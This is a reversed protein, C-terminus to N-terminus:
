SFGKALRGEHSRGLRRASGSSTSLIRDAYGLRDSPFGWGGAYTDQDYTAAIKEVESRQQHDVEFWGGVAVYAVRVAHAHSVDLALRDRLCQDAVKDGPPEQQGLEFLTYLGRGLCACAAVQGRQKVVQGIRVAQRPYDRSPVAVPHTVSSSPPPFRTASASSKVPGIVYRRSRTPPALIRRRSTEITPVTAIGRDRSTTHAEPLV